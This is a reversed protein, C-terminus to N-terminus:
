IHMYNNIFAFSTKVSVDNVRCHKKFIVKHKREPVRNVVWDILFMKLCPNNFINLSTLLSESVAALRIVSHCLQRTALGEGVLSLKSCCM